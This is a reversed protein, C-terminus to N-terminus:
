ITRASVALGLEAAAARVAIDHQDGPLIRKYFFSVRDPYVDVKSFLGLGLDMHAKGLSSNYLTVTANPMKFVVKHYGPMSPRPDVVVTGGKERRIVGIEGATKSKALRLSLRMAALVNHKLSGYKGVVGRPLPQRTLPNTAKPNRALLARLTKSNWYHKGVKVARRTPVPDLSVANTERRFIGSGRMGRPLPAVGRGEAAMVAHSAFASRSAVRTAADAVVRRAAADRKLSM